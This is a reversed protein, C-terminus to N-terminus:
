DWGFKCYWSSKKLAMPVSMTYKYLFCPLTKDLVKYKIIKYYKPHRLELAAGSSSLVSIEPDLLM